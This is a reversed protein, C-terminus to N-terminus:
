KVHELPYPPVPFYCQHVLFTYLSITFDFSFTFDTWKQKQLNCFLSNTTINKSLSLSHILDIDNGTM